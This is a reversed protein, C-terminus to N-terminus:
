MDHKLKSYKCIYTLFKAFILLENLFCFIISKHDFGFLMHQKRFVINTRLRSSIFESLNNWFSVVIECDCFLHMLTEPDKGCFKSLNDDVFEFGHLQLQTVISRLNLRIQFSRLKTKNTVYYNNEYINKWNLSDPTIQLKEIWRNKQKRPLIKTKEILLCYAKKCTTLSFVIPTVNYKFCDFNSTLCLNQICKTPIAAILKIYKIFVNNNARMEFENALEHYSNLQGYSTILQQFDYIGVNYIEEIFIPKNQYKVLKNLWM